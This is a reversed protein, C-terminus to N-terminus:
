NGLSGFVKKLLDTTRALPDQRIRKEEAAILKFLGDVAKTEVYGDLDTADKGLYQALPGAKQMLKKYSATVGAQDTAAQVIPRFREKLRAESTKRFYQTAADDPGKLISRADALSMRSIADAFLTAAEPVAKEAAHNMTAVFQDAYKAQGLQRLLKEVKQLEDPMPIKVDPSNLFGGERGLRAIAERTGRSLAEKLGKVMDEESLVAAAGLGPASTGAPKASQAEEWKRQLDELWGAQAAAPALTSFAMWALLAPAFPSMRPKSM